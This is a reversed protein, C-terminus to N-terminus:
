ASDLHGSMSASHGEPNRRRSHGTAGTIGGPHRRHRTVDSAMFHPHDASGAHHAATTRRGCRVPWALVGPRSNSTGEARRDTEAYFDDLSTRVDEDGAAHCGASGRLSRGAADRDDLRCSSKLM